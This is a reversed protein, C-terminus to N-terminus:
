LMHEFLPTLRSLFSIILGKAKSVQYAPLDNSEIYNYDEDVELSYFLNKRMQFKFNETFEESDIIVLSETSLYSSRSDINFTGIVSINKDFSASKGHISGPGQYEFVNLGRDIMEDRYTMYGAFGPINPSSASSNTLFNVEAVDIDYGEISKRIPRSPIIYPSQAFIDIEAQSSLELIAKLCRAEKRKRSVENSIFHISDTEMTKSAWDFIEMGEFHSDLFAEKAQKHNSRIFDLKELGSDIKKQSLSDYGKKSHKYNWLEDYYGQMDDLVTATADEQKAYHILVDRDKTFSDGSSEKLYFRDEINRGGVLGFKRDVLIIKDHLRSNWAMPLLPNPPEYLKIEINQHAGFAEFVDNVEGRMNGAQIMGDLIIRVQVGRDAAELVSGLFVESFEGDVLKYYSIDLSSEAAEIISLRVNVADSPVEILAARDHPRALKPDQILSELKVQPDLPKQFIPLIFAFIFIYILYAIFISKLIRKFSYM